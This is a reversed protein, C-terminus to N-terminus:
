STHIYTCYRHDSFKDVMKWIRKKEGRAATEQRAEDLPQLVERMMADDLDIQYGFDPAVLQSFPDSDEPPMHARMRACIEM